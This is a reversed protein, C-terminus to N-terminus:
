SPKQAAREAMDRRMAELEDEEAAVKAAEGPAGIGLARLFETRGTPTVSFETGAADDALVALAICAGAYM